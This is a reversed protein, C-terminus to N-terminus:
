VVEGSFAVGVRREVPVVGREQFWPAGGRRIRRGGHAHVGVAGESEVRVVEGGHFLFLAKELRVGGKEGVWSRRRDDSLELRRRREERLECLRHHLHSPHLHQNSICPLDSLIAAHNILWSPIIKDRPTPNTLQKFM